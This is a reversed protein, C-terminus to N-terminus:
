IQIPELYQVPICSLLDMFFWTKIYNIAIFRIRTEIKKDNDEYAILFNIFFDLIYM